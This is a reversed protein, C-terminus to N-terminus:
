VLMLRDGSQVGNEYLSLNLSLIQNSECRFLMLQSKDGKISCQEKQCIVSSIENIVVSTAADENLKFEYVNDVSPVFIEVVIM